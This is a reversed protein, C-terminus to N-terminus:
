DLKSDIQKFDLSKMSSVKIAILDNISYVLEIDSKITLKCVISGISNTLFLM